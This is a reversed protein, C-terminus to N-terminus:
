ASKMLDFDSLTGGFASRLSGLMADSTEGISGTLREFASRVDAVDAGRQGLEILRGPLAAIQGAAIEFAKGVMNGVAVGGAITTFMSGWSKSSNATVRATDADIAKLSAQVKAFAQDTLAKARILIEIEKDNAM